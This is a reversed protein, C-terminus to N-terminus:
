SSEKQTMGDQQSFDNKSNQGWPIRLEHNCLVCGDEGIKDMLEACAQCYRHCLVCKPIYMSEELSFDGCFDCIQHSDCERNKMLELRELVSIVPPKYSQRDRPTKCGNSLAWELMMVHDTTAAMETTTADWTCGLCRAYQMVDLRGVRAVAAMNSPEWPCGREILWRLLDLHGNEAAIRSVDSSMECENEICIKMFKINGFRACQQMINVTPVGNKIMWIFVDARDQVMARHLAGAPWQCGYRRVFKLIQLEGADIAAACVNSKMEVNYFCAWYLIKIQGHLAAIYAINSTDLGKERWQHVVGLQGMRVAASLVFMYDDQLGFEINEDSSLRKLMEQRDSEPVELDVLIKQIRDIREGAHVMEKERRKTKTMM